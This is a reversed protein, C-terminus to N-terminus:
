IDRGYTDLLPVVGPSVYRKWEASGARLAARIETGTTLRQAMSRRWLTEVPYGLGALGRRKSEGWEDYITVFFTAEDPPPLYQSLRDLQNVPAPVIRLDDYTWGADLCTAEVMTARQHYTFPNNRGASRGPDEATTGLDHLDPNTIGIVLRACRRKAAQLYELHGLHVPQFRGLVIGYRRQETM